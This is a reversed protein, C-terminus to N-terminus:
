LPKVKMTATLISEWEASFLKMLEIAFIPISEIKLDKLSLIPVPAGSNKINLAFHIQVSVSSISCISISLKKHIGNEILYLDDGLRYFNSINLNQYNQILYEFVISSILRQFCVGMTLDPKFLEFIFHLMEDSAIKANEIKDEFDVMHEIDVNCPGVWSIVSHGKLHFNEYAFLPRLQEGNYIKLLSFKLDSDNIFKYSLSM